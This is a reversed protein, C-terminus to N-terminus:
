NHIIRAHVPITKKEGQRSARGTYCITSHISRGSAEQGLGRGAKASFIFFESILKSVM